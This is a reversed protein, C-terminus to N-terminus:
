FCCLSLETTTPIFILWEFEVFSCGDIFGLSLLLTLLTADDWNDLRATSVVIEDDDNVLAVSDVAIVTVVIVVVGLFTMLVSVDDLEPVVSLVGDLVGDLVVGVGCDDCDFCDMM